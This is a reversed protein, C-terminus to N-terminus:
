DDATEDWDLVLSPEGPEALYSSEYGVGAVWLVEDACCLLPMRARTWAPIEQEQLLKKLPRRPRKADPQLSEGGGRTRLLLEKDQLRSLSLGRGEATVFRVKGGAWPLSSEGQWRHTDAVMQDGCKLVQLQGRAVQLTRGDVSFAPAADIAAEALQRLMEALFRSDPMRLGSERLFHRLLNSRRATSLQNFPALLLAQGRVIAQADGAAIEDALELSEAAHAATRLLAGAPDPFVGGLLPLAERRLFNRRLSHDTNSEDEVWPINRATLWSEIETRSTSLFPRILRAKGGPLVREDPMAALGQMGAGRLLNLLVTEAQDDRHHALALWDADCQQFIAYRAKRAAAELGNATVDQIQVPECRFPVALSRCLNTCFSAWDDANPSLGHHVHLASIDIALGAMQAGHLAHLLAVSDAGGSLGVCVHRGAHLRASFFAAVREILDAPRKNRSAAM